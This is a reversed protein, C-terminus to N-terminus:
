QFRIEIASHSFAFYVMSSSPTYFLTNDDVVSENIFEFNDKFYKVWAKSNDGYLQLRLNYVDRAERVTNLYLAGYIRFHFGGSGGGSFAAAVLQIVHIQFINEKEYVYPPNQKVLSEGAVDVHVVGGNEMIIKQLEGGNTSAYEISDSDLIWISGFCYSNSALLNDDDNYLDICVAGKLKLPQDPEGEYYIFWYIEARTLEGDIMILTFSEGPEITRNNYTESPLVIIAPSSAPTVHNSSRDITVNDFIEKHLEVISFNGSLDYIANDENVTISIRYKKDGLMQDIPINWHFEGADISISDANPIQQEQDEYCLIIKVTSGPLVDPGYMWEIKQTTGRQWKYDEKPSDVRIGEVITEFSNHNSAYFVYGDVM